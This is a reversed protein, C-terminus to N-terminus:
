LNNYAFVIKNMEHQWKFQEVVRDQAFMGMDTRLTKNESLRLVAKTISDINNPEVLLGSKGEKIAEPVGGSRGGIVPLHYQNAELFVLGFGEVDPGIRYNPMIFIDALRYYEELDIDSVNPQIEVVNTLNMRSVLERLRKEEPGNGVIIYRVDPQRRIIDPMAKIVNHFGKRKVLRGVSLLVTQDPNFGHRHKYEEKPMPPPPVDKMPCPHIILMPRKTKGLLKEAEQKTFESNSMVAKAHKLIFRAIMKKRPTAQAALIDLGHLSVYYELGKFRGIVYAVLGLPLINGVIMLDPKETDITQSLSKFAPLWRPRVKRSLLTKYHVTHGVDPTSNAILGRDALVAIKDKPMERALGYLYNALGGLRPKYDLTVILIKPVVAKSM